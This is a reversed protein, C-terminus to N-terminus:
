AILSYHLSRKHWRILMGVGPWGRRTDEVPHIKANAILSAL